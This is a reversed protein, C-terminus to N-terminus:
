ASLLGVTSEKTEAEHKTRIADMRLAIQEREAKLRMIEERLELKEKQV